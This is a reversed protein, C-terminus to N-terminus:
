KGNEETVARCQRYLGQILSSRDVIEVKTM